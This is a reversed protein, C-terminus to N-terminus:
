EAEAWPDYSGFDWIYGEPDRCSYVRGGYDQDAIPLTIEAGERQAREYHADIEPVVIYVSGTPKGGSKNPLTVLKGYENDRGSSGLMIMGNGLVLQAHDIRGKEGPVILHKEFGLVRCLWEIAAPADEYRLAPIIRGTM